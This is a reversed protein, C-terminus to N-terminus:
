EQWEGLESTDYYEREEGVWELEYAKMDLGRWGKPYVATIHWTDLQKDEEGKCPCHLLDHNRKALGNSPELTTIKRPLEVWRRWRSLDRLGDGLAIFGTLKYKYAKYRDRILERMMAPPDDPWVVRQMGRVHPIEDSGYIGSTINVFNHLETEEWEGLGEGIPLNSWRAKTFAADTEFSILDDYGDNDIVLKLLAARTISTIQAAWSLCFYPPPDSGDQEPKWGKQQILKGYISNLALKMALQAPHNIAKLVVRENYYDRMFAFPRIDPNTPHYLWAEHVLVNGYPLRLMQELEYSWIWGTHKYPYTFMGATRKFMPQPYHPNPLIHNDWSVFYIGLPFPGALANKGLWGTSIHEWEGVDSTLQTMAYPYASRRDYRWVSGTTSGYRFPEFRGGAYSHRLALPLGANDTPSPLEGIHQKVQHYALVKSAIAGPGHWDRPYIGVYALRDRLEEMLLVLCRLEAQCYRLVDDASMGEFSSARLSKGEAILHSLRYGGVMYGGYDDGLYERCAKEFSCAFFSFVDDLKFTVYKAKGLHVLEVYRKLRLTKHPHYIISTRVSPCYVWQKGPEPSHIARLEEEPLDGLMMNVDYTFAFGVHNATPHKQGITLLFDFIKKTSLAGNDKRRLYSGDSCALLNYIHEGSDLTVGEGDWGVFPRAVTDKARKRIKKDRDRSRRNQIV